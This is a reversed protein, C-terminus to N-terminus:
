FCCKQPPSQPSDVLITDTRSIESKNIGENCILQFLEATGQSTKASTFMVQKDENAVAFKQKLIELNEDQLVDIKNVVTIITPGLLLHKLGASIAMAECASNNTGKYTRPPDKVAPLWSELQSSIDKEPNIVVIIIRAGRLYTHTLCRFREQGCTDWLHLVVTGRTTTLKHSRFTCGITMEAEAQINLMSHLLSTKGAGSDGLFVIKCCAISDANM